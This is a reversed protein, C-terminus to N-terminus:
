SKKWSMRRSLTPTSFPSRMQLLLKRYPSEERGGLAEGEGSERSGYVAAYGVEVEGEGEGEVEIEAETRLADGEKEDGAGTAATAVTISTAASSSVRNEDKGSGEAEGEWSALLGQGSRDSVAGRLPEERVGGGGSSSSSSSISISPSERKDKKGNFFSKIKGLVSKKSNKASLSERNEIPTTPHIGSVSGSVSGSGSLTALPLVAEEEEEEIASSLSSHARVVDDDLDLDLGEKAREKEIARSPSSPSSPSSPTGARSLVCRDMETQSLGRQLLHEVVTGRRSKKKLM